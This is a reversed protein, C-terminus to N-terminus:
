GEKLCRYKYEINKNGFKRISLFDVGDGGKRFVEKIGWFDVFRCMWLVQYGKVQIIIFDYIYIYLKQCGGVM